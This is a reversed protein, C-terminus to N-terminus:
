SAAVVQAVDSYTVERVTGCESVTRISLLEAPARGARLRHWLMCPAHCQLDAGNSASKDSSRVAEKPMLWVGSHATGAVQQTACKLAAQRPPSGDFRPDHSIRRPLPPMAARALSALSAALRLTVQIIAAAEAEAAAEEAVDAVALAAVDQEPLFDLVAVDEAVVDLEMPPAVSRGGRGAAALVAIRARRLPPRQRTHQEHVRLVEGATRIEGIRPVGHSAKVKPYRQLGVSYLLSIYLLFTTLMM